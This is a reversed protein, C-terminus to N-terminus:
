ADSEYEYKYETENNTDHCGDVTIENTAAKDNNYTDM